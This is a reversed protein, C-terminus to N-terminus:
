FDIRVKNACRKENVKIAVCKKNIKRKFFVDAVLKKFSKIDFKNLKFANQSM